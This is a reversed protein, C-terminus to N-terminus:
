RLDKRMNPPAYKMGALRFVDHESQVEITGGHADLIRGDSMRRNRSRLGSVVARSVHDPGTRIVLSSWWTAPSATFIDVGVGGFRFSRMKPGWRKPDSHEIAGADLLLDLRDFLVNLPKTAFLGDQREEIAPIALIEIDGVTEEGRRVSGVFQWRRTFMCDGGYGLGITRALRSCHERAQDRNMREGKSM